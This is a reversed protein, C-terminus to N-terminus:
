FYSKTLLFLYNLSNNM